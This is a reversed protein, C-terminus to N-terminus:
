NAPENQPKKWAFLSAGSNKDVLMYASHNQILAAIKAQAV